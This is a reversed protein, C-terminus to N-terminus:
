SVRRPRAARRCSATRRSTRTSAAIIRPIAFRAASTAVLTSPPSGQRSRRRSGGSSGGPTRSLDWPNNTPRLDRQLITRRGADAPCQDQRLDRRRSGDAARGPRRRARSTTRRAPQRLHDAAGGRRFVGQDDHPHRTAAGLERRPGVGCRGSASARTRPGCADRHNREASSQLACRSRSLVRAVRPLRDTPQPNRGGMPEGDPVGPATM